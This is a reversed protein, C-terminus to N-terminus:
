TRQAIPLFLKSAPKQAITELHVLGQTHSSNSIGYSHGDNRLRAIEQEEAGNVADLFGSEHSLLSLRM